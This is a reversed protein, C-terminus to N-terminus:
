ATPLKDHTESFKQFNIKNREGVLKVQTYLHDPYDLRELFLEVLQPKKSEQFSPKKVLDLFEEATRIQYNEVDGEKAGFAEMVKTWNWHAIDNYSLDENWISREIAYGDNNVLFITVPLKKRVITSIEQATVQASGDGELLTIRRGPCGMAVGVSAPLTFGISEYFVQTFFKAGKKLKVDMAFFQSTGTEAILFGDEQVAESLLKPMMVQHLPGKLEVPAFDAEPKEASKATFGSELKSILKELVHVFNVDEYLKGFVKANHKNIMILKDEKIDRSFGGSNSDSINPGVNLVFDAGEVNKWVAELCLHGNYCGVFQPHSEDISSKGLLTTFGWAKTLDLVKHLYSQLNFREAYMDSLVAVTEAEDLAKYIADVVEDTLPSVDLATDLPRKLDEEDVPLGVMDFPVWLIAPKNWKISEAIVHDIQKTATSLDWLAEAAVCYPRSSQEYMSHDNPLYGKIQPPAHHCVYHQDQYVRSTTGVLHIVPVDEANAGALGNVACLEGVGYTSSFVAPLRKSRALGDAAYIGNLENCTGVYQLGDVEYIYDLMPMSYDGPVGLINEIGLSRLRLFIYKALPVTM